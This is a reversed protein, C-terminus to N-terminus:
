NEDQEEKSWREISQVLIARFMQERRDKGTPQFACKNEYVVRDYDVGYDPREGTTWSGRGCNKCEWHRM